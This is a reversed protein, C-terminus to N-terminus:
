IGSVPVKTDWCQTDSANGGCNFNGGTNWKNGDAAMLPVCHESDPPCLQLSYYVEKARTWSYSNDFVM